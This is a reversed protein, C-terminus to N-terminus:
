PSGPAARGLLVPLISHGDAKEPPPSSSMQVATPLFDRASWAADSVLGAPVTGPWCVIMPASWERNTQSQFDAATRFFNLQPETFKEPVASSTFFIAVNNTMSLKNLQEFLTGIDGDLRTLLAARNRAAQPWPQDTFPADSPVPFDDRGPTASRPAPLNVMLFFPRFANFRDPQHTRVFNNVWGALMFDPLYRVKQGGTNQYIMERGGNNPGDGPQWETWRNCVTNFYEHPTQRWFSDAYYNTGEDPNLFGAFEDFGQKWPKGSLPWEGIYGTKYGSQKLLEAVTTGGDATASGNLLDAGAIAPDSDGPQYHTFRIGQAALADLNPTEFNTQGYCSLDGFGLGHCQIFIISPRHLIATRVSTNTFIDALNARAAGAASLLWGMILLMAMAPGPPRRLCTERLLRTTFSARFKLAEREFSRCPM